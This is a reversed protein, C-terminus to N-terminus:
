SYLSTIFNNNNNDDDDDDDDDDNYNNNDFNSNPSCTKFSFTPLNVPIGLWDLNHENHM